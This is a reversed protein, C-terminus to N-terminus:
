FEASGSIQYLLSHPEDHYSLGPWREARRVVRVSSGRRGKMGLLHGPQHEENLLCMVIRTIEDEGSFFFFYHIAQSLKRSVEM